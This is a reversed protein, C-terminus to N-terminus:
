ELTGSCVWAKSSFASFAGEGSSVKRASNLGTIPVMNSRTRQRNGQHVTILEALCTIDCLSCM